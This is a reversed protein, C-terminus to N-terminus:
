SLRVREGWFASVAADEAEIKSAAMAVIQSRCEPHRVIWCNREASWTANM